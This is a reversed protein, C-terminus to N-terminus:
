VILSPLPPVSPAVTDTVTVFTFSGGTALLSVAVTASSLEPLTSFTVALSESTSPSSRVTVAADVVVPM